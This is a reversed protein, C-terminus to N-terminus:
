PAVVTAPRPSGDPSPKTQRVAFTLNLDKSKEGFFGRPCEFSYIRPHEPTITRHYLEEFREPSLGAVPVHDIATLEDGERLDCNALPSDPFVETVIASVVGRQTTWRYSVVFWEAFVKYAPLVVTDSEETRHTAKPAAEAPRCVILGTAALLVHPFFAFCLRGPDQLRVNSSRATM